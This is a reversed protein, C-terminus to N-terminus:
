IRQKCKVPCLEVKSNGCNCKCYLEVDGVIARANMLEEEKLCDKVDEILYNLEIQTLHIKWEDALKKWLAHRHDNV